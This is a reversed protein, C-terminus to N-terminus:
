GHYHKRHKKLVEDNSIGHGNEIQSIAELLGKQQSESLDVWSGTKWIDAMGDDEHSSFVKIKLNLKRALDIIRKVDSDSEGQVLITQM